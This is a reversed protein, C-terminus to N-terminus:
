PRQPSGAGGGGGGGPSFVVRVSTGLGAETAGPWGLGRGEVVVTAGLRRM